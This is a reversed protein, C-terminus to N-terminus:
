RVLVHGDCPRLDRSRRLDRVSFARQLWRDRGDYAPRFATRGHLTVNNDVIALDGPSLRLTDATTALADQLALLAVGAAPTLPRTAAFDVVIDADGPDGTLVAHPATEGGGTGFSPPAATIFEAQFLAERTVADLLPYARRLSAVRLGAVGQPDARLCLLMVYDPRHRHFANEVHFSLQVSGENGQLDESGPVPVVDQVLVGSKEARFAVPEGLVTAVLMLVAAPVTATRQVSGSTTPTPPVGTGDDVPLGHILLSGTEGSHRLLARLERRFPLPMRLAGDRVRGLWEPSNTHDGAAALEAALDSIQRRTDDDLIYEGATVTTTTHVAPAM